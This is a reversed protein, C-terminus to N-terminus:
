RPAAPGAFLDRQLLDVPEQWLEAIDASATPPTQAHPPAACAEVALIARIGFRILRRMVPHHHM